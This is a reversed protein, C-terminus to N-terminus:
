GIGPRSEETADPDVICCVGPLADDIIERHSPCVKPRKPHSEVWAIVDRAAITFSQDKNLAAIVAFKYDEYLADIEPIEVRNALPAVGMADALICRAAETPGAGAYGWAFGTPSHRSYHTLRRAGSPDRVVIAPRERHDFCGEYIKEPAPAMSAIWANENAIASADAVARAAREEDTAPTPEDALLLFAPENAISHPSLPVGIMAHVDAEEIYKWRATGDTISIISFTVDSGPYHEILTDLPGHLEEVRQYVESAANTVSPGPNRDLETVIGVRKGAHEFIRLRTYSTLRTWTAKFSIITDITLL